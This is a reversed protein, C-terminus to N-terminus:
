KAAIAKLRNELRNADHCSQCVLQAKGASAPDALWKEATQSYHSNPVKAIIEKLYRTAEEQLGLRMAAQAQGALVEAKFHLPMKDLVGDEQKRIVAFLDRGDKLLAMKQEEPFRDAMFVFTAALVRIATPDQKALSQHANRMAEALQLGGADAGKSKYARMALYVQGSALWGRAGDDNPNAALLERTKAMGKEFTAMDGGLYGAFLDERVWQSVTIGKPPLEAWLASLSILIFLVRM